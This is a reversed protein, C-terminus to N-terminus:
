TKGLKNVLYLVRFTAADDFQRLDLGVAKQLKNLRYVLTNRHIFLRRAAESLNLNCDLFCQITAMMEENFLKQNDESFLINRYKEAVGYPLEGLLRELALARYAFVSEEVYFHQGIRLAAQADQYSQHLQELTMCNTGIGVLARVGEDTLLTEAMARAYEEEDEVSQVDLVLATEYDSMPAVCDRDLGDILERLCERIDRAHEPEHSVVMVLREAELPFKMRNAQAQLNMVNLENRLLACCFLERRNGEPTEVCALLAGAIEDAKVDQDLRLVFRTDVSRIYRNEGCIAFNKSWALNEVCDDKQGQLESPLIYRGHEDLVAGRTGLQEILQELMLKTAM